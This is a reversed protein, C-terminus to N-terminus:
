VNSNRSRGRRLGWFGLAGTLVGMLFILLFLLLGDIQARWLLFYLNIPYSNQAAVVLVLCLIVLAVITRPRKLFDM